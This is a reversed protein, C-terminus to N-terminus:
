FKRFSNSEKNKSNLQKSSKRFSKDLFRFPQKGSYSDKRFPDPRISRKIIPKDDNFNFKTLLEDKKNRDSPLFEIDYDMQPYIFEEYDSNLAISDEILKRLDNKLLDWDDKMIEKNYHHQTSARKGSLINGESDYINPLNKYKEWYKQHAFELSDYKGNRNTKLNTMTLIAFGFAAIIILTVVLSLSAKATLSSIFKFKNWIKDSEKEENEEVYNESNAWSPSLFSGDLNNHFKRHIQPPTNIVYIPSDFGSDDGGLFSTKGDKDNIMSSLSQFNNNQYPHYRYNNRISQHATESNSSNPSNNRYRLEGGCEGKDCQSRQPTYPYEINNFPSEKKDGLSCNGVAVVVPTKPPNEEDEGGGGGGGFAANSKESQFSVRRGISNKHPSSLFSSM